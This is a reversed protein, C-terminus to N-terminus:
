SGVAAREGRLESQWEALLRLAEKPATEDVDLQRLRDLLPHDAFGFLTLQMQGVRGREKHKAIRAQGQSDLHQSELEALIDKARELVERPVGALRAVQIGYSKDAAGDIIKHLFM